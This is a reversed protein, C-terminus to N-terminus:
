ARAGVLARGKADVKAPPELGENVDLLEYIQVPKNKGKVRINDLERATVKDKVQAYTYESIIITTYYGKNTGELRAGLNVNDGMLTYNMRGTSGMNAVTMIGTNLGIGISLRREVPWGENMKHLVEIQRLACKCALLAHDPQPLPAGWFCMIEDGVYKDLTGKYDLILDTMATLYQNLHNVLEQPTMSESLTTFSRIDSFFVTLDKDVGGLEPPNQLIEDVVAPSVYKGFMDRIRRKDREEFVTRYAVVALFALFAGIAPATFTLIYDEFEFILMFAFFYVVIAGITVVLSWITSLRSVMLSVLMVIGFLILANLWPAAYTLFNSMLITNLANAHMEVGYMLGFPTPKEDAAMGKSFPGVMVIMNGLKKTPPWKAPDPSPPNSAYGSYSRVPYTQHEEPNTSSPEGMFNILMSGTEDIPIRVESVTRWTGKSLVNGDADYRPATVPLTYAEWQGTDVNFKQPSPIRIYKGLVIEVDSMKRNMYDMALALTISPMFTDQYKRVVFITKEPAADTAPVVYPPASRPLERKLDEITKQTLPAPIEHMVSNRDMWSLHEFRTTDITESTSLEDLPIEKELHSLKAVLAQRRYIQDGDSLFNAHGYGSTANGYPKLPPAELGFFTSVKLWDGRINTLTGMRTYLADQRSFFERETQPSNEGPLLVTELFVRGNSRISSVLQADDEPTESIESFFVDIFLARERETQNKIRSLSNILDAHRFRPFPWRGFRDLSKDDIGVILIDPSIRPNAQVVSVGEQVRTRTISNKLRFNLDLLRQELNKVLITGSSLGFLLAFVMLGIVLGFYKTEFFKSATKKEAM